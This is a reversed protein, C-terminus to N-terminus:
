SRTGGKPFLKNKVYGVLIMRMLMFGALLCILRYASGWAMLVLLAIVCVLRLVTTIALFRGKNKMRTVLRTTTWLSYIYVVSLLAGLGIFLIVESMSLHEM